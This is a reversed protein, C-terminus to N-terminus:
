GHYGKIKSALNLVVTVNSNVLVGTNIRSQGWFNTTPLYAPQYIGSNVLLTTTIEDVKSMLVTILGDGLIYNLVMLHESAFEQADVFSVEASLRLQLEKIIYDSISVSDEFSRIYGRSSNIVDLFTLADSKSIHCDKVIADLFTLTDTVPKRIAKQIDDILTFADQDKLGILKSLSDSSIFSDSLSKVVDKSVLTDSINISDSLIKTLVIRTIIVDLLSVSDSLPLSSQKVLDDNLTLLDSLILQHINAGSFPPNNFIYGSIYYQEGWNIIM